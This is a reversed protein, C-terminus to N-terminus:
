PIILRITLRFVYHIGGSDDQYGQAKNKQDDVIAVEKGPGPLHDPLPGLFIALSQQLHLM